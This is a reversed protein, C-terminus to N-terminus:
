SRVDLESNDTGTDCCPFNMEPNDTSFVCHGFLASLPAGAWSQGHWHCLVLFENRSQGHGLCRPGFHASPGYHSDRSPPPLGTSLPGQSAPFARSLLGFFLFFSLRFIGQSNRIGSRRIILKKPRRLGPVTELGKFFSSLLWIYRLNCSLVAKWPRIYRLNCSLIAKSPRIYRAPRTPSCPASM